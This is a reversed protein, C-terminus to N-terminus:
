VLVSFEWVLVPPVLLLVGSAAAAALVHVAEPLALAPVEAPSKESPLSAKLPMFLSEISEVELNVGFESPLIM